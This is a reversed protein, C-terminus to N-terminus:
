PEEGGLANRKKGPSGSQAPQGSGMRQLVEASKADDAAPKPAFAFLGMSYCLAAISVVIVSALILVLTLRKTPSDTKM